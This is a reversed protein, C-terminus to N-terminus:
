GGHDIFPGQRIEAIFRDFDDIHNKLIGYILTDDVKDYGHVLINRTGAMPVLFDLSKDSIFGAEALVVFIGKNDKPEPLGKRSIIIKGIDLSAEISVQIGREAIDKKDLSKEYDLFSKLEGAIQRLRALRELLLNMKREISKM